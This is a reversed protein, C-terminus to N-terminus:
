GVEESSHSLRVEKLSIFATKFVLEQVERQGKPGELFSRRPEGAQKSLMGHERVGTSREGKPELIAKSKFYLRPVWVRNVLHRLEIAESANRGVAERNVSRWPRQRGSRLVRYLARSSIVDAPSSENGALLYSSRGACMCKSYGKALPACRHIKHPSFEVPSGEKM